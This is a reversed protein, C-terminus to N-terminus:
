ILSKVTSCSMMTVAQVSSGNIRMNTASLNVTNLIGCGIGSNISTTGSSSTSVGKIYSAAGGGASIAVVASGNIDANELSCAISGSGFSTSLTGTGAHNINRMSCAAGTANLTLNGTNSCRSDQISSSTGSGSIYTNGTTVVDGFNTITPM